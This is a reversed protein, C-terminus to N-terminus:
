WSCDAGGEKQASQSPSRSWVPAAPQLCRLAVGGLCSRYYNNGSLLRGLGFRGWFRRAAESFSETALTYFRRNFSHARQQWTSWDRIRSAGSYKRAQGEGSREDRRYSHCRHTGRNAEGFGSANGESRQDKQVA